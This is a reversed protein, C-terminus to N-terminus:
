REGGMGDGESRDKVPGISVDVMWQMGADDM